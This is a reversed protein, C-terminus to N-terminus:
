SEKLARQKEQTSLFESIMDPMDEALQTLPEWTYEDLDPLVEWEVQIQFVGNHERIVKLEYITQYDSRIHESARILREDVVQGDLNGKNFIMRTCHVLDKKGNLINECEFM